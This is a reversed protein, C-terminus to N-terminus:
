MEPGNFGYHGPLCTGIPPYGILVLPEVHDALLQKPPIQLPRGNGPRLFRIHRPLLRFPSRLSIFIAQPAPWKIIFPSILSEKSSKDGFRGMLTPTPTFMSTPMVRKSLRYWIM